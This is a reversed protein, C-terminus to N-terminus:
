YIKIACRLTVKSETFSHVAIIFFLRATCLERCDINAQVRVRVSINIYITVTRLNLNCLTVQWTLKVM